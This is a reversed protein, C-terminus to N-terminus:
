RGDDGGTRDDGGDRKRGTMLLFLWGLSVANGMGSHHWTAPSSYPVQPTNTKGRCGAGTLAQEEEGEECCDWIGRVDAVHLFWEMLGMERWGRGNYQSHHARKSVRDNKGLTRDARLSEIMM